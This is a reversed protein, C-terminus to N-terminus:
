MFAFNSFGDSGTLNEPIRQVVYCDIQSMELLKLSLSQLILALAKGM